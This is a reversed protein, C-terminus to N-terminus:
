IPLQISFLTGEEESSAVTITGHHYEIIEKCIALGLGTGHRDAIHAGQGRYFRDFIHPIDKPLIVSGHSHIVITAFRGNDKEELQSHISIIENETSYALANSILNSFVQIMREKVIPIPPILPNPEHKIQICRQEAKLAYNLIVQAIIADMIYPEKPFIEEKSELKSLTLLDEILNGLRKSESTLINMFRTIKTENDTQTLLGLYLQINTIPTRLEHSVNSVFINKLKDLEQLRKNVTALERTRKQVRKELEAEREKRATIDTMVIYIRATEKSIQHWSLRFHIYRRTNDQREVWFEMETSVKQIKMGLQVIQNIVFQVQPTAFDFATMPPVHSCPHDLIDCARQNMFLIRDEELIMLGDSINEAMWRFRSESERLAMEAKRRETINRAVIVAYKEEQFTVKRFSIESPIYRGNKTILDTTIIPPKELNPLKDTSLKGVEIVLDEPTIDNIGLELLEEQSYQLLQCATQSADIFRGNSIQALFVADNSQDLLSKFRELEGLRQQLEPYYKKKLSNEGLNLFHERKDNWHESM